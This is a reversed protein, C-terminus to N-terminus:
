NHTTERFKRRPLQRVAEITAVGSYSSEWGREKIKDKVEEKGKGEWKGKTERGEGRRGVLRERRGVLRKRWGDM